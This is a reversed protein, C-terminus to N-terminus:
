HHHSGGGGVVAAKGSTTGITAARSRAGASSLSAPVGAPGTTTANGTTARLVITGQTTAPQTIVGPTSVTRTNGGQVPGKHDSDAKKTGERTPVLRTIAPHSSVMGLAVSTVAGTLLNITPGSTSRGIIVAHAPEHVRGEVAEHLRVRAAVYTDGTDSRGRGNLLSPRSSTGFLSGPGTSVIQPSTISELIPVVVGPAVSPVSLPVVGPTTLVPTVTLAPTASLPVISGTATVPTSVVPTVTAPSSVPTILIPAVSIPTTVIPTTLIPTATAASAATQVTAKSAAAASSTATQNTMPALLTTVARAAIVPEATPAVSPTVPNLAGASPAAATNPTALSGSEAQDAQPSTAQSHGAHQSSDGRGPRGGGLASPSPQTRYGAYRVDSAVYSGDAGRQLSVVAIGDHGTQGSVVAASRIKAGNISVTGIEPHVFAQVIMHNTSAGFYDAPSASLTDSAATSVRGRGAAYDGSVIVFQGHQVNAAATGGLVLSGVRLEGSAHVAQGRVFLTGAPAGDLRSALVTGDPRRLGSVKVWDGLGFQNAGWTGPQISVAQGAVTLMGSGLELGEIRGVVESRVSITRTFPANASGEARIAVLQGVRLAAVSSRAGDIDVSATKDYQIELGNVFVSGFGTVVGVVGTGGIGRDAIQSTASVTAPGGTGGIGRDSVLPDAVLPGGNPGIQGVGADRDDPETASVSVAQSAPQPALTVCATLLGLLVLPVLRRM